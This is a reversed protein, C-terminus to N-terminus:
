RKQARVLTAAGGTLRRVRIGAFANRSLTRVSDAVWTTQRVLAPLGALAERWEPHARGWLAGLLRLYVEWAKALPPAPPYTFDHLLIVGGPRLMRAANEILTDMDAYKALYSSTICDVRGRLAVEEARGQVFAVNRLGLREQARRALDAYERRLEVGVVFCRPLRRAIRFTLIGTGSAQDLILSADRPVEGVICHKWWLDFGLTGFTATRGYSAGTGAFFRNVLERQTETDM